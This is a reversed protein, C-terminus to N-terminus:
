IKGIWDSGSKVPVSCCTAAIRHLKLAWSTVASIWVDSPCGSHTSFIGTVFIHETGTCESSMLWDFTDPFKCAESFKRACPPTPSGVSPNFGSSSHTHSMSSIHGNTTRKQPSRTIASRMILMRSRRDISDVGHHWWWNMTNTIPRNWRLIAHASASQRTKISGFCDQSWVLLMHPQKVSNEYNKLLHSLRSTFTSSLAVSISRVRRAQPANNVFTKKWGDQLHHLPFNLIPETIQAETM